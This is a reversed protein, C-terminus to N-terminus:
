QWKTMAPLITDLDPHTTLINVTEDLALDSRWEAPAIAVVEM